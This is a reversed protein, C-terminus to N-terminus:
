RALLTGAADFLTVFEAKDPDAAYEAASVLQRITSLRDPVAYPSEKLIESFAAVAIAWRFDADLELHTLTAARIPVAAGVEFAPDSELAGPTKYRIKVRALEEAGVEVVGDYLAGDEPEPAGAVEPIAGGALVLEYLATVRHGAGVDGADIVDNRFDDDAIARNEYGLLRYAYVQEPNFEVQIKMDKAIHVLTSLMREQVYRTAQESSGIVGYIGNGHNSIAEMMADNLNGIGFGLATLTIGTKRKEVILKVLEETSSLGVNFDGDTCLLVHNLGGEIFGAQAQEYALTIGAGGATSGGASLGEIVPVIVQSQAVPTPGLRVETSGAYTVISITDTPDLVGLTETLVQQVLPLKNAALMSGSVDVLFVLNAPKKQWPPPLKGQIGVRLLLTDDRFPNQAAGLALAFPHEADEAPAPYDYAFYNVYEELRVSAPVPLLGYGVDRRFIDYSATDVDAAFTSLPDHAAIVFPNTGVSQYHDGANPGSGESSGPDPQGAGFSGDIGVAASGGAGVVPNPSLGPPTPYTPGQTGNRASAGQTADGSGCGWALLGAGLIGVMSWSRRAMSM